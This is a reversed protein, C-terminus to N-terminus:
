NKYITVLINLSEKFTKLTNFLYIKKIPIIKIKNITPIM